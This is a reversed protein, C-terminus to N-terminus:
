EVVELCEALQAFLERLFERNTNTSMHETAVRWKGEGKPRFIDCTGFGGESAWEIAVGEYKYNHYPYFGTIKLNSSKM